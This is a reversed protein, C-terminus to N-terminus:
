RYSIVINLGPRQQKHKVREALGVMGEWYHLEVRRLGKFMEALQIDLADIRIMCPTSLRLSALAHRQAENLKSHLMTLDSFTTAM